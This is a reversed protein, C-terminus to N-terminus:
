ENKNELLEILYDLKAEIIDLRKNRGREMSGQNLVQSYNLVTNFWTIKEIDESINSM